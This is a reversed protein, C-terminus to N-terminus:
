GQNPHYESTEPLEESRDYKAWDLYTAINQGVLVDDKSADFFDSPRPIYLDNIKIDRGELGMYIPASTDIGRGVGTEALYGVEDLDKNAGLFHFEIAESWWEKKAIFEAVKFRAHRNENNLLRPIGVSTVYQFKSDSMIMELTQLCEMITTGQAVMMYRYGTRTYRTFALAKAITDNSNGLTDPVVIEHVGMQEAVYYLHKNGFEM